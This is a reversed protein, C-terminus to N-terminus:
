RGEATSPFPTICSKIKSCHRLRQRNGGVRQTSPLICGSKRGDKEKIQGSTKPTSRAGEKGELAQKSTYEPTPFLPELPEPWERPQATLMAHHTVLLASATVRKDNVM